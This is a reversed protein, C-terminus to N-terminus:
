YHRIGLVPQFSGPSVRRLELLILDRLQIHGPGFRYRGATSGECQSDCNSVALHIFCIRVDEIFEHVVSAVLKM